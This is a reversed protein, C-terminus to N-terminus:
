DMPETIPPIEAVDVGSAKLSAIIEGYERVLNAIENKNAEKPANDYRAKLSQLRMVAKLINM